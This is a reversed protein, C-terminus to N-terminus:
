NDSGLTPYHIKDNEVDAQTSVHPVYDSEIDPAFGDLTLDIMREFRKAIIMLHSIGVIEIM